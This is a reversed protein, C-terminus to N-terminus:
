LWTGIVEEIIAEDGIFMQLLDEEEQMQLSIFIKILM